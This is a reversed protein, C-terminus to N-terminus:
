ARSANRRQERMMSMLRPTMVDVIPSPEKPQWERIAQKTPVPWVEPSHVIEGPGEATEILELAQHIVRMQQAADHPRGLLHGFPFEVALTRPVGIKEAWFPM